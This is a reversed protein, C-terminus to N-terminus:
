RSRILEYAADSKLLFGRVGARFASEVCEISSYLTLMLVKVNPQTKLISRTAELGNVGPMSLDLLIIDPQLGEALLVAETGNAGEGCIEWDLSLSLISWIGRRIIAHDDVVLVRPM